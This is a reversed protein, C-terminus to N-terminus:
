TTFLLISTIWLSLTTTWPMLSTSRGVTRIVPEDRGHGESDSGPAVAM